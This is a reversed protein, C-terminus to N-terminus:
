AEVAPAVVEEVVEPAALEAILSAEEELLKPSATRDLSAIKLKIEAIKALRAMKVERLSAPSSDPSSADHSSDKSSAKKKTAKKTEEKVIAPLSALHELCARLNVETLEKDDEIKVEAKIAGFAGYRPLTMFKGLEFEFSSDIRKVGRAGKAIYLKGGPANVRVFGSQETTSLNYDKVISLTDSLSLLTQTTLSM